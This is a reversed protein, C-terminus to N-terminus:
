KKLEEKLANALDMIGAIEGLIINRDNDSTEYISSTIESIMEHATHTITEETIEM